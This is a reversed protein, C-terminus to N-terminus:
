LACSLLKNVLLFPVVLVDRQWWQGHSVMDMVGSEVEITMTAENSNDQSDNARYTFSDTGVFGTDPIYTFSGDDNLTLTGNTRGTM